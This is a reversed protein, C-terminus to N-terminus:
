DETQFLNAVYKALRSRQADSVEVFQVSLPVTQLEGVSGERVVRALFILAEVNRELEIRMTFRTGKPLKRTSLLQAGGVSLDMVRTRLTEGTQLALEAGMQEVRVRPARRREQPNEISLRCDELLMQVFDRPRGNPGDVFSLGVDHVGNSRRRSVWVARAATTASLGPAELNLTIVESKKVPQSSEVGIGGPGFNATHVEFKEGSARRADLRVEHFVRWTDRKETYAVDAGVSPRLQRQLFQLWKM